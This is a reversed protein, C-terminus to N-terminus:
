CGCLFCLSGSLINLLQVAAGLLIVLVVYFGNLFESLDVWFM